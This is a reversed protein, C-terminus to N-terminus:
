LHGIRVTGCWQAECPAVFWWPLPVCSSETAKSAFCFPDLPLQLDSGPRPPIPPDDPFLLRLLLPFLAFMM